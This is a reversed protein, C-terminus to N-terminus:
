ELTVDLYVSHRDYTEFFPKFHVGDATFRLTGPDGTFSGGLDKADLTIPRWTSRAEPEQAALLVPGYFVSAINPQDMLPSLYFSFPMTLEITDGRKWTRSLALYTGPKADVSQPQGNIKVFFGHTAWKPVRVKIDLHRNVGIDSLRLETSDAYPFSTEQRIVVQREPWTLTSPVYLNVYLTSDDASKFYISDQLKTHSELATGNCCTFGTMRANGFGKRAGPNLPVHYTNGANEKAVSALIHNYLAQEYYAMFESNQDFMFLQRSLKLLNYTACTENQGGKAFGNAFLTNPQATFCEANNPNKAGAVGGISYMYSNRFITWFNAAIQYYEPNQTGQYTKLAGTIQPIHQNAHKGRLTDVNKALGHTHEVDGFFFSINDFLQACALFRQDETIGHLRAMVENMGGYEGAIYRNWMSIRTETPVVKLRAYVWLGMGRAIELAKANGGVEYCDLLGALIKHLTYYPAWIQSDRGGYTAGKELMIFQDPPYGSIFGKGWHWYDTRIGEKSLDSDHTEKGPGPPVKTPDATFSGGDQVPRGSKQSLDYLVDIMSDMKKLFNAQLTKDYSTSACAQAMASLYHGSAHGRLRTTQSDWGRLPRVGEPQAQGFADRFNYLFSNPDTKALTLIFKDRNKIFQTERGQDNENLVVQGLPFSEVSRTHAEAVEPAAKVTVTAKPQFATGPVEGTTSYTGTKLVRDNNAASPWIVRVMPGKAGDRYVAPITHPLHPLHGVVTDVSIDPVSQLRLATHLLAARKDRVGPEKDELQVATEVSQEGSVAHRHITAVQTNTLAISYVRVDHLKGNLDRDGYQAKGLYFRNAGPNDQDLVQELTLDVGTAQAVKLGNVFSTLTKQTTDLVAALHVWKNATVRSTVPGQEEAWGADTIRTRFGQSTNAGVPTCFFNRTTNRGFDFFRQWPDEGRIWVWGTVSLSEIGLLAEGPIQVYGGERGGPLSLVTGFQGDKVYKAASGRVAAHFNNRSWDEANGNFVYRAVLATEGIGDLFQDGGGSQAGAQPAGALLFVFLMLVSLTTSPMREM